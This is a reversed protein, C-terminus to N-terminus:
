WAGMWTGQAPVIDKIEGMLTGDPAWVQVSGAHGHPATVIDWYGDVDIDAVSVNTGGGDTVDTIFFERWLAGIYNFIRVHGAGGTLPGIVIEDREDGDFDGASLTLGADMNQAYALFDVLRTGDANYIAVRPEKNQAAIILEKEWDQDVDAVAVTFRTGEVFGEVTFRSLEEGYQDFIVIDNSVGVGVATVIEEIGDGTVDGIAASVGRRTDEDYAFFERMLAGSVSFIRVQPGGGVGPTAVIEVTNDDNLDDVAVQVGGTFAEGFALFSAYAVGDARWVQVEPKGGARAGLVMYSDRAGAFDNVEDDIREEDEEREEDGEEQAGVLTAAVELARAINIRGAGIAGVGSLTHAPDVSLKLASRVNDVSIEPYYSVILAAAGAVIPSAMSTGSWPGIYLEGAEARSGREAYGLGYIGEGPASIDACSSGFNTFGTEQDDADTAAVGIVWDSVSGQLCAPYVPVENLDRADNGLAAVIVVGQQYAHQVANRLSAHAENGAFSLNIVDAGNRVAYAIAASADSENGSGYEDLIRLPMIKANWVIGTYGEHNNGVAGVIGAVVTGHSQADPDSSHELEPVPAADNDVFDWGQTDDIYGNGDDDKGNGAVEGTNSWLNGALDPHDLAIGTDLVAVVVEESGTTIEWAEPASIHPLYWLDAYKTDNPMRALALAPTVMGLLAILALPKHM